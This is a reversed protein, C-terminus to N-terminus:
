TRVIALALKGTHACLVKYGEVQLAYELGRAVAKEDEVILIRDTAMRIGSLNAFLPNIM